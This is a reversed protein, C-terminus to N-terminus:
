RRAGYETSPKSNHNQMNLLPTCAVSAPTMKAKVMRGLAADLEIAKGIPQALAQRQEIVAVIVLCVDQALM